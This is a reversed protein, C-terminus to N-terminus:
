IRAILSLRLSLLIVSSRFIAYFDGIRKLFCITPLFSIKKKALIIRPFCCRTKVKVVLKPISKWGKVLAVVNIDRSVAAGTFSTESGAVWFANTSKHQICQRVWLSEKPARVGRNASCRCNALSCLLNEPKLLLQSLIPIVYALVIRVV